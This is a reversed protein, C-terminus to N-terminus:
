DEPRCALQYKIAKQHGFENRALAAFFLRTTEDGEAKARAAAAHYIATAREELELAQLFSARSAGSMIGSPRSYDSDPVIFEAIVGCEPCAVPKAGDKFKHGCVLCRWDMAIVGVM